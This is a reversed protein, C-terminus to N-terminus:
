DLEGCSDEVVVFAVVNGLTWSTMSTERTVQFSHLSVKEKTRTRERKERNKKGRGSECEIDPHM